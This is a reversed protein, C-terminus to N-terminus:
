LKYSRINVGPKHDDKIPLGKKFIPLKQKEKDEIKPLDITKHSDTFSASSDKETSKKFLFSSLYSLM